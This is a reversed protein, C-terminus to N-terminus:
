SVNRSKWQVWEKEAIASVRQVIKMKDAEYLGASSFSNIELLWFNNDADQCIDICFVSDPYYGVELLEKCLAMAGEPVSPIKTVQGQFRYTSHAIIEKERSTIFRGEWIITKPSSVVM